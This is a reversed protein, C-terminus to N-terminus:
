SLTRPESGISSRRRRRRDCRRFHRQPWVSPPLSSCRALRTVTPALIPDDVWAVAPPVGNSADPIELRGGPLFPTARQYVLEGLRALLRVAWVPPEDGNRLVWMTLEEGWGSVEPDDTDKTFLESLGYTILFWHDDLGYASVSWLGGQGPLQTGAGWHLPRRGGVIPGIATGALRTKRRCRGVRRCRTGWIAPVPAEMLSPPSTRDPLKYEWLTALWLRPM